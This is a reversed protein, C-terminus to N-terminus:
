PAIAEATASAHVTAEHAIGPVARAFLHEVTGTLTVRVRTASLVEVVPPAVDVGSVGHAALSQAVAEQVLDAKRDECPTFRLAVAAHAEIKPLISLFAAHLNATRAHATIAGPTM